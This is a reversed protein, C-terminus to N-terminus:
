GHLHPVGEKHTHRNEEEEEEEQGEKQVYMEFKLTRLFCNNEMHKGGVLQKM